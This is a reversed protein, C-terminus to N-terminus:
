RSGCNLWAWTFKWNLRAPPRRKEFKVVWEMGSDIPNSVMDTDQNPIIHIKELRLIRQTETGFPAIGYDKGADMISDWMFEGYEAPFHLEWGTEGVFGIRLMLTQVGAVDGNKVRMYRFGDTSLDLDTLKELTERARPGAVNIVGYGSTVNTVHACIKEGAMWWKFWEEISEVSATSTTVFYRDEALRAVTGDDMITGNDACLVGYRVRGIRLNSFYHTYLRDLLVPADKGQVELKGLTSVDIIGVGNRVAHAEEQASGYLRPRQWINSDIMEAGLERHKQDMPTLKTPRHIPGALTGLSVPKIPPRSTTSGLDAVRQGSHQAAIDVFTKHCMKGQCPGMTVTSYRKLTQIDEFGEDVGATIDRATVDECFCVFQKAGLANEM